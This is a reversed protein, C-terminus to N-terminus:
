SSRYSISEIPMASVATVPFSASSQTPSMLSLRYSWVTYTANISYEYLDMYGFGAPVDWGVQVIPPKVSPMQITVDVWFDKYYTGYLDELTVEITETKTYFNISGLPHIHATKLATLEKEVSVLSENFEREGNNM